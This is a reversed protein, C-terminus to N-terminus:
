PLGHYRPHPKPAVTPEGKLAAMVLKIIYPDTVEKSDRDVIRFGGKIRYAFGRVADEHVHPMFDKHTIHYAPHRGENHDVHVENEVPDYVWLWQIPGTIPEQSQGPDLLRKVDDPISTM